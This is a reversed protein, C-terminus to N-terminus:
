PFPSFGTKIWLLLIRRPTWNEYIEQIEELTLTGAFRGDEGEANPAYFEDYVQQVTKPPACFLQGAAFVKATDKDVVETAM